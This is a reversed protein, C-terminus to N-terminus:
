NLLSILKINESIDNFQVSFYCYMKFALSMIKQMYHVYFM